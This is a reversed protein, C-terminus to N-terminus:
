TSELGKHIQRLDQAIMMIEGPWLEPARYPMTYDIHHLIDSLRSQASKSARSVEDSRKNVVKMEDILLGIRAKASALEVKLKMNEEILDDSM